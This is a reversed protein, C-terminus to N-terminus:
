TSLARGDYACVLAHAGINRELKFDHALPQTRRTYGKWCCGHPLEVKLHTTKFPPAATQLNQDISGACCCCEVYADKAMGAVLRRRM